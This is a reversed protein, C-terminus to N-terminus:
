VLLQQYQEIINTIDIAPNQAIRQYHKITQQLYNLHERNNLDWMLSGVLSLANDGKTSVHLIEYGRKNEIILSEDILAFQQASLYARVKYNHHVPCLIYEVNGGKFSVQLGKLLEIMLEGGVGAIIVLHQDNKSSPLLPLQAVDCCHVQWSDPDGQWHKSLRIEIDILLQPVIDVFHVIDACHKNLLNFGLLGHDCCCDWIHEYQKIVMQEIHQLRLSTKIPQDAMM